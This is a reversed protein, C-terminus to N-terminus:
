EGGACGIYPAIDRYKGLAADFEYAEAVGKVLPRQSQELPLGMGMVRVHEAFLTRLDAAHRVAEQAADIGVRCSPWLAVKEGATLGASAEGGKEHCEKVASNFDARQSAFAASAQAGAEVSPEGQTWAQASTIDGRALRDMVKKHERLAGEIKRGSDLIADARDAASRCASVEEQPAQVTWNTMKLVDNKSPKTAREPLDGSPRLSIKDQGATHNLGYWEEKRREEQEVRRDSSVALPCIRSPDRYVLADDSPQALWDASSICVVPYPADWARESCFNDTAARYRDDKTEAAQMCTRTQLVDMVGVSQPPGTLLRQVTGLPRIEWASVIYQHPYAHPFTTYDKRINRLNEREEATVAAYPVHTPRLSHSSQLALRAGKAIVLDLQFRLNDKDLRRDNPVRVLFNTTVEEGSEFWSGYELPRGYELVASSTNVSFRSIAPVPLAQPDNLQAKYGEWCGTYAEEQAVTYQRWFCADGFAEERMSGEATANPPPKGIIERTVQYISSVVQVRIGGTNKITATARFTRMDSPQGRPPLQEKLKANVTLTPAVTGPLYQNQYWWNVGGWLAAGTVGVAALGGAVRGFRLREPAETSTWALLLAAASALVVVAWLGFQLWRRLESPGPMTSQLFCLVGGVFVGAGCALVAGVRGYSERWAPRVLFAAAALLLVSAFTLMVGLVRYPINRAALADRGGLWFALLGIAGFTVAAAVTSRPGSFRSLFM